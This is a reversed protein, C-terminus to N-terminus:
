VWALDLVARALSYVKDIRFYKKLDQGSIGVVAAIIPSRMKCLGKFYRDAEVPDLFLKEKEIYSDNYQVFVKFRLPKASRSSMFAKKEVTNM